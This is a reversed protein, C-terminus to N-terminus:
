DSFRGFYFIVNKIIYYLYFLSLCVTYISSYDGEEAHSFNVVPILFDYIDGKSTKFAAGSTIHEVLKSFAGQTRLSSAVRALARVAYANSVLHFFEKYRAM